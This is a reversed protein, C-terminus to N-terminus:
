EIVHMFVGTCTTDGDNIYLRITKGATFAALLTAYIAKNNSQDANTWQLWAGSPCLTSGATLQFSVVSPLYTPQLLAVKGEFVQFAHANGCFLAALLVLASQRTM